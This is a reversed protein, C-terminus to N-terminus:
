KGIINYKVWANVAKTMAKTLERETATDVDNTEAQPIIDAVTAWFAMSGQEIAENIQSPTVKKELILYKKTISM